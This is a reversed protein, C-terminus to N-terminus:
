SYGTIGLGAADDTGTWHTGVDVEAVIPIELELGFTKKLPLNEMVEQILPSYYDVRDEKIQFM